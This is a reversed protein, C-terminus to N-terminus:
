GESSGVIRHISVIQDTSVDFNKVPNLQALTVKNGSRRVLRKIIALPPEGEQLPRRQVLVYAGPMVPRGPHVHAIEGQEYRPSMSTGTIFVAYASPVGRLNDPRQIYQVIEGNFIGWGDPGGEAMGYVGLLDGPSVNTVSHQPGHHGLASLPQVFKPRQNVVGELLVSESIGLYRALASRVEEPLRKPIGRELYQQLYAHNKGIARSVSALSVRKEEIKAQILERM